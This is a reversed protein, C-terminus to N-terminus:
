CSGAFGVSAPPLLDEFLSRRTERWGFTGFAGRSKVLPADSRPVRELAPLVATCPYCRRMHSAEISIARARTEGFARLRFRHSLPARSMTSGPSSGKRRPLARSEIDGPRHAGPRLRRHAVGCPARPQSFSSEHARREGDGEVPALRHTRPSLTIRGKPRAERRSTVLIRPTDVHRTTTASSSRLRRLGLSAFISILESRRSGPSAWLPFGRRAFRRRAAHGPPLVPSRQQCWRCGDRLRQTFPHHM